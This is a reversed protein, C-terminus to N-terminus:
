TGCAETSFGGRVCGSHAIVFSELRRVAGDDAHTAIAIIRESDADRTVYSLAELAKVVFPSTAAREGVVFWYWVLRPEGANPVHAERVDLKGGGALPVSRRAEADLSRHEEPTLMNGYSIMEAGMNGGLGYVAVFVEVVGNDDDAYMGSKEVFGGRYVPRWHLSERPGHWPATGVPLAAVNSADLIRSRAQAQSAALYVPAMLLISAAVPVPAWGMMPLSSTPRTQSGVALGVPPAPDRWRQGIWFMALMVVIFLIRGFTVHETGPGYRMNTLHSVLITLYVRLGNAVIPIVLFAAVCLLRKKWGHYTIHAYLVGLVLGTIVYNLGGCARAVEFTGSPISILMHSRLIPVGTWRLAVTAVDATLSM